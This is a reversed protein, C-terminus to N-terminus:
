GNGPVTLLGSVTANKNGAMDTVVGPLAQLTLTNGAGRPMTAIVQFSQLRSTSNVTTNTPTVSDVTGGILVLKSSDFKTALVDSTSGGANVTVTFTAKADNLNITYAGASPTGGVWSAGTLVTTTNATIVMSKGGMSVTQGILASATFAASGVTMTTASVASATGALTSGGLTPTGFDLTPVNGDYNRLLVAVSSNLNGVSDAVKGAMLVVRVKKDITTPAAVDVNFTYVSGSGALGSIAGNEVQFAAATLGTVVESFVLSCPISTKNTPKDDTSTPAATSSALSLVRPATSDYTRTLFNVGSVNGSFTNTNGVLDTVVTGTKITVKVPTPGEGPIVTLTYVTPTAAFLSIVGNTVDFDGVDFGTVAEGFTTTFIIPTAKTVATATSALMSAISVSPAAIDLTRSAAAMAASNNGALDTGTGATVTMALSTPSGTVTYYQTWTKGDASLYAATAGSGSTPTVGCYASGSPAANPTAAPTTGGSLVFTLNATNFTTSMVENSTLVVKFTTGISTISSGNSVIGGSFVPAAVDKTFTYPTAASTNIGAVTFADAPSNITVIGPATPTVTIVFNGTTNAITAPSTTLAVTGNTVVFDTLAAGALAGANLQTGSLDYMKVDFVATATKSYNAGGTSTVGATPAFVAYVTSAPTTLNYGSDSWASVNGAADTAATQITYTKSALLGGGTLSTAWDSVGFTFSGTASATVTTGNATVTSGDDIRLKVTSLPEAQGTIIPKLTYITGAAAPSAVIPADPPTSDVASNDITFNSVLTPNGTVVSGLYTQTLEVTHSAGSALTAMTFGFKTPDLVATDAVVGSTSGDVKIALSSTNTGASFKTGTLTINNARDIIFNSSGTVGNVVLSPTDWVLITIANTLVAAHNLPDYITATLVHTGAPLPTSLTVGVTQRNTSPTNVAASGTKHLTASGVVGLVADSIKVVFTDTTSFLKNTAVSSAVDDDDINVSVAISPTRSTTASNTAPFTITNYGAAPVSPVVTYILSSLTLPVEVTPFTAPSAGGLLFGSAAPIHTYLKLNSGMAVTFVTRHANSSIINATTLTLATEGTPLSSTVTAPDPATGTVYSVDTQFVHFDGGTGGAALTQKFLPDWGGVDDTWDVAFQVTTATGVPGGIATITPDAAQLSAGMLGLALLTPVVRRHRSLLVTPTSSM